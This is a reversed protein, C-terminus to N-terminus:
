KDWHGDLEYILNRTLSDIIKGKVARNGGFGLFSQGKFSLTAELGSDPCRVTINGVWEVVPVPLFRIMLKPCNMEYNESYKWLNLKRKGQIVGEVAAGSFSFPFM